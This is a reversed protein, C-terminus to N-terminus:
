IQFTGAVPLDQINVLADIREYLGIIHEVPLGPLLIHGPHHLVTLHQISDTFLIFLRQLDGDIGMIM